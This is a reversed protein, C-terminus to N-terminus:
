TANFPFSRGPGWIIRVAGSTNYVSGGKGAGAGGGIAGGAGTGPTFEAGGSGPQGDNGGSGAFGGAGNTSAGSGLFPADATQAAGSAGQGYLSVGGGGGGATQYGAGGRGGGGAGGAGAGGTGGNGAGAPTAGAGGSGSYGGAGGGGAGFYAGGTSAAGSGGAGGSGGGNSSGLPATFSGGAGAAGTGPAAGGYAIMSTSAVTLTANGGNNGSPTSINIVLVQGPTVSIGSGWALGGGGGAYGTSSGGTTPYGGGGGGVAVASISTVSDPVTWNFTGASTFIAEGSAALTTIVVSNSWASAGYSAGNHRARIYYTTNNTLGSATISVKNTTNTYSSWIVSGGGGDATRIEWDTSAHVDGSSSSFASTTITPSLSVGTSGSVPATITPQAATGSATTFSTDNAWASPGFTTGNHRARAYYVTGFSLSASASISTKNVTNATSSWVLTGGGSAATRIEWDTSAHTDAPGSNAFATTALTPNNSVGTSGSAPSTMGPQYVGGNFTTFSSVASWSSSGYTAGTHQVRAYYVVGFALTASVTYSVKATTSVGSDVTVTAFTPDTSIQWRSSQHTDSGGTVAFASSTLTPSTGIGTAGATPATITPSTILTTGTSFKTPSSWASYVNEADKFRCRWFYQTAATLAPTITWSNVAGVTVSRATTAFTIDTSVQFDAASQAVGYLSYYTSAQLTATTSVSVANDAPTVHTPTRVLANSIALARDVYGKPVADLDAIPNGALTLIGLMTDGAKSVKGPDGGSGVGFGAMLRSLLAAHSEYIEFTTGTTLTFPLNTTWAVVNTTGTSIMRCLGRNDGSTFQIIYKGPVVDPVKTAISSSTISNVGVIEVSGNVVTTGHTDFSWKNNLSKVAIIQNGGFDDTHCLYSNSNSANPSTLSDVSDVEDMRDVLRAFGALMESSIRMEVLTGDSFAQAAHNSRGRVCNSFTNGVRSGVNIVEIVGNAELTIQFFEGANPTPFRTGDVVYITTDSSSIGNSLITRANDAYIQKSITM